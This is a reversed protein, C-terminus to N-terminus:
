KKNKGQKKEQKEILKQEKRDNVAKNMALGFLFVATSALIFQLPIPVFSITGYALVLTIIQLVETTIITVALNIGYLIVIQKLNRKKDTIFIFCNTGIIIGFIFSMCLMQIQMEGFSMVVSYYTTGMPYDIALENITEYKKEEKSNNEKDDEGKTEESKIQKDKNDESLNLSKRLDSEIKKSYEIVDKETGRKMFDTAMMVNPLMYVNSIVFYTLGISLVICLILKLIKNM